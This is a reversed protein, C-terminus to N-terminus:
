LSGETVITKMSLSSLVAFHLPVYAPVPRPRPPIVQMLVGPELHPPPHIYRAGTPPTSKALTSGTSQAVHACNGRHHLTTSLIILEPWVIWRKKALFTSRHPKGECWTWETKALFLRPLRVLISVRTAAVAIWGIFPTRFCRITGTTVL